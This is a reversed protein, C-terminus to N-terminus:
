LNILSGYIVTLLLSQNYDAICLSAIDARSRSSIGGTMDAAYLHTGLGVAGKICIKKGYIWIKSCVAHLWKYIYAIAM